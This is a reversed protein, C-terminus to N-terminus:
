GSKENGSEDSNNDIVPDNAEVVDHSDPHLLKNQRVEEIRRDHEKLKDLMKAIKEERNESAVALKKEIKEQIELNKAELSKRVEVIREHKKLNDVLGNIYSERNETIAEMKKDLQEKTKSVFINNLETKKLSAEEVKNWRDALQNLRQAELSQRRAEAENLKKMIDDISVPTKPPSSSPKSPTLGAVPADALIVEFAMGGKGTAAARIETAKSDSM